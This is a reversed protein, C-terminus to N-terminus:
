EADGAADRKASGGPAVTVVTGAPAGAGVLVYIAAALEDEFTQYAASSVLLRCRSFAVALAPGLQAVFEPNHRAIDLENAFTLEFFDALSSATMTTVTGDFRDRFVVQDSPEIRPSPGWQADLYGRDCSAYRYVLAEAAPGILDVLVHRRHLALLSPAYGDTGYAAHCLGALAVEDPAGWGRLMAETRVLHDLLTGGPHPHARAGWKDLTEVTSLLAGAHPRPQAGLAGFHGVM